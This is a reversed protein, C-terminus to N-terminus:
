CEIWIHFQHFDKGMRYAAPKDWQSHGKDLYFNTLEWTNITLSLAQAIPARNLFNNGIGIHELNNGM